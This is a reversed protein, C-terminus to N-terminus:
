LFCLLFAKLNLELIMMLWILWPLHTQLKKGVNWVCPLPLNCNMLFYGITVFQNLVCANVIPSFLQFNKCIKILRSMDAHKLFVHGFHTGQFKEDLGLVECKIISKLVIIMTTLNAREDKM